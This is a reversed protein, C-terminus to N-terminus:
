ILMMIILKNLLEIEEGENCLIKFAGSPFIQLKYKSDNDIILFTAKLLDKSYETLLETVISSDVIEGSFRGIFGNRYNFKKISVGELQVDHFKSKTSFYFNSIDIYLQIISVNIGIRKIFLRIDANQSLGGYTLIYLDNLDFEFLSTAYIFSERKTMEKTKEDFEQLYTPSRKIIKVRLRDVTLTKCEIVQFGSIFDVSYQNLLEFLQSQSIKDGLFSVKNLVYSHLQSM